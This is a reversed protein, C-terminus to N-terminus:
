KEPKQDLRYRLRGLGRNIPNSRALFSIVPRRRIGVEAAMQSIQPHHPSIKIAQHLAAMMKRRNRMLRYTRALNFFNEAEFFEIKVAHQCLALGEKVRREYRAIGFGLYSYVLGPLETGRRDGEAIRALDKLGEKWDGRRCSDIGRQAEAQLSAVVM